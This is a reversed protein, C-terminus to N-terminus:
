KFEKKYELDLGGVGNDTQNPAIVSNNQESSQNQYNMILSWNPQFLWQLRVENNQRDGTLPRSYSTNVKKGLQKSVVVKPVAINRTSDISPALQVTLGLKEQITKNLQSQNSLNALIELGTQQQQLDSSVTQDLKTATYGLALLSFIDNRSLSPTSTPEINLQNGTGKVLLNIDYESVRSDASILVDPQIEPGGVFTVKGNKVDFPKDKFFLKSGPDITVQGKLEPKDASGGVFVEGSVIGELIRNKVVIGKLFIADIDILLSPQKSQLNQVPLYKNPTLTVARLNQETFEDTILGDSIIYKVRLTYPPWLGIVDIKAAGQTQYRPPFEINLKPADATLNVVVSKSGKFDIFGSASIPSQNIDSNIESFIIKSQTFDFFASIKNLPYTFGKLGLSAQDILGEGMLQLKDSYLLTKFQFETFGSLNDAFPVLFQFPRLSLRAQTSLYTQNNRNELKVTLKQDPGTMVIPQMTFNTSSFVLKAESQLKIYQTSRQLLLDSVVISGQVRSTTGLPIKLDVIGSVRAMTDSSPLPLFILPLLHLPNFDRIQAQISMATHNKPIEIQTQLQRGLLLAKISTSDKNIKIEGQSDPSSVNEFLTDKLTFSVNLEPDYISKTVKGFLALDASSNEFYNKLHDIDELRLNSSSVNLHFEPNKQNTNIQGTVNLVGATKRLSVNNFIIEDGTSNIKVTAQNFSEDAVIVSRFDGDLHYRLKWFDLPGEFDVAVPGVGSIPFPVQLESPLSATIASLDGLLSSASGSITSKELDIVIQGSAKMSKQNLEASEFKLQSKEYSLKTKIQGLRFDSIEFQDVILDSEIKGSSSTGSTTLRGKGLGRLRLSALDDVQSLDLNESEFNLKFGKTFNVLGDSKFGTGGPIRALARYDIGEDTFNIDGTLTGSSLRVISFDGSLDPKVDLNRAEIQTQCNIKLPFVEGSCFGGADAQLNVPIDNLGISRFLKQLDFNKAKAQAKFKFPKRQEFIIKTVEADGSPHKIEIKDITVSNDKLQSFISADGFAFQDLSVDKTNFELEGNNSQLSDFDSKGKITVSGAVTSHKLWEPQIRLTLFHIESLNIFAEGSIKIKPDTLLREYNTTEFDSTFQTAKYKLSFQRGSMKKRDYILSEASIQIKNNIDESLFINADTQILRLREDENLLTLRNINLALIEPLDFYKTTTKNQSPSLNFNIKLKAISVKELPIEPVKDFILNSIEQFKIKEFGSNKSLPQQNNDSFALDIQGDYLSIYSISIRGVLLAFVNLQVRVAKIQAQELAQHGSKGLEKANLTVNKLDLNLRILSLDVDSLGLKYDSNSEVWAPGKSKILSIIKPKAVVIWFFCVVLFIVLPTLVIARRRKASMFKEM